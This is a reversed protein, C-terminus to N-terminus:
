WINPPIVNSIWSVIPFLISIWVINLPTLFALVGSIRTSWFHLQEHLKVCNTSSYEDSAYWDLRHWILLDAYTAGTSIFWRQRAVLALDYLYTCQACRWQETIYYLWKALDFTMKLYIQTVKTWNQNYWRTGNGLASWILNSCKGNAINNREGPCVM